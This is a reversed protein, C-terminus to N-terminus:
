VTDPRNLETVDGQVRRKCACVDLACKALVFSYNAMEVQAANTLNWQM